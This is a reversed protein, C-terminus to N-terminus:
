PTARSRRRIVAPPPETGGNAEFEGVASEVQELVDMRGCPKRLIRAKPVGTELAEWDASVLVFQSRPLRLRLADLIELGTLRDGLHIDVLVVAIQPNLRALRLGDTVNSAHLVVYQADELICRVVDRIDRDNEIILVHRQGDL